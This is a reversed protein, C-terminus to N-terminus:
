VGVMRKRRWAQFGMAAIGAGFLIVSPPEPTVQTEGYIFDDTVVLDRGHALDEAGGPTFNTGDFSFLTDTGVTMKVSTILPNDFLVGLFEAEGPGGVPVFYKGLSKTNHFYEISSTNPTNVDLFIAGFGRTAAFVPVSTPASALVFSMGITNGNFMAFTKNPSFAPFHGATGPNVSAFGDGSVAFIGDNLAGRAQFRNAPIGVTKGLDIVTTNGGFDTGNLAIGDWNIERRGTTTAPGGGNNVGGLGVRFANLADTAGTTGSGSFITQAQGAGSAGLVLAGLVTRIFLTKSSKRMRHMM